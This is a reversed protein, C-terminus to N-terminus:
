RRGEVQGLLRSLSAAVTDPWRQVHREIINRTNLRSVVRMAQSRAVFMPTWIADARRVREGKRTGFASRRKGTRGTSTLFLVLYGTGDKLPRWSPQGFRAVAQKYPSVAGAYTVRRVPAGPLPLMLFNGAVPGVEGGNAFLGIIEPARTKVVGAPEWALGRKPYAQSTFAWNAVNRRGRSRLKGVADADLADELAQVGEEVAQKNAKLVAMIRATRAADWGNWVAEATRRDIERLDAGSLTPRGDFGAPGTSAVGYTEFGIEIM